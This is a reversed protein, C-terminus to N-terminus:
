NESSTRQANLVHKGGALAYFIMLAIAAPAIWNANFITLVGLAGLTINGFGIETVIKLANPDDIRFITKATFEPKVLQYFGATLLRVARLLVRVM